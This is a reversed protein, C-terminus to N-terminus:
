REAFQEDHGVINFITSWTNVLLKDSITDLINIQNAVLIQQSVQVLMGAFFRLAVFVAYSEAFYVGVNVVVHGYLCILLVPRRGFLDAIQGAVAGGVM